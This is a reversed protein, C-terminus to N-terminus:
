YGSVGVKISERYQIRFLEERIWELRGNQKTQIEPVQEQIEMKYRSLKSRLERSRPYYVDRAEKVIRKWNPLVIQPDLEVFYRQRALYIGISDIPYIYSSEWEVVQDEIWYGLVQWLDKPSIKPNKRCKVEVLCKDLIFDGSSGQPFVPFSIVQSFGRDKFFTQGAVSVREVDKIEEPVVGEESIWRELWEEDTKKRKEELWCADVRSEERRVEEPWKEWGEYAERTYGEEQWGGEVEEEEELNEWRRVLFAQGLIETALDKDSGHIAKDQLRRPSLCDWPWSEEWFSPDAIGRLKLRLFLDIGAGLIMPFPSFPPSPIFFKSLDQDKPQSYFKSPRPVEKKLIPLIYKRFSAELTETEEWDLVRLDEAILVLESTKVSYGGKIAGGKEFLVGLLGIGGIYVEVRINSLYGINKELFDLSGRGSLWIEGEELGQIAKIVGLTDGSEGGSFGYGDKRFKFKVVEGRCVHVIEVSGPNAGQITVVLM